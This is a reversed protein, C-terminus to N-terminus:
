AWRTLDRETHPYNAHGKGSLWPTIALTYNVMQSESEFTDRTDTWFTARMVGPRTTLGTPSQPALPFYVGLDVHFM